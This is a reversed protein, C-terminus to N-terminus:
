PFSPKFKAESKPTMKRPMGSQGTKKKKILKPRLPTMSFDTPQKRTHRNKFTKKILFIYFTHTHTHTHAHTHTHM